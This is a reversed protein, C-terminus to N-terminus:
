HKRRKPQKPKPMGPHRREWRSKGDPSPASKARLANLEKAQETYDIEACSPYRFSVTTKGKFNTVSFDGLTIVDMGILVDCGVLPAMTARTAVAVKNPLLLSILFVPQQATGSATHVQALGIPQLDLAGVVAQTIVTGTAGTDWVGTCRHTKAPRVQPAGTLPLSVEVPTQLVLLLGNAKTTLAQFDM